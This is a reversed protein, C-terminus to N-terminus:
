SKNENIKLLHSHGELFEVVSRYKIFSNQVYLHSFIESILNFDEEYDVTLRWHSRHLDPPAYIEKINFLQPNHRIFHTVHERSLKDHQNEHLKKLTSFTMVEVLYGLPFTQHIMNSAYDCKTEKCVRIVEDVITPDILPNDAALRVILDGGYKKACDYYRKLVDDYSGRFCIVGIKKSLEEIKDDEKHTSTAIIIEDILKSFKIFNVIHELIPKGQIMRISKGPLRSSGVRAQIISLIKM